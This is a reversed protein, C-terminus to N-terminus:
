RKGTEKQGGVFFLAEYGDGEQMCFIDSCKREAERCADTTTKNTIIDWCVRKDKNTIANAPWTRACDADDVASSGSAELCKVQGLM